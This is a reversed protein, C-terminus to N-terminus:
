KPYATHPMRSVGRAMCFEHLSIPQGIDAFISGYDESIISLAKM